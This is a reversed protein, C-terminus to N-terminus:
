RHGSVLEDALPTVRYVKRLAELIAASDTSVSRSQVGDYALDGPLSEINGDFIIGVFEGAGNVTPSGSNGGIIDCDTVFDMPTDMNVDARRDVWSQPLDFPEKDGHESSRQYLGAITTLPAVHAGNEEYGKVTGYALRLTFTADPYTSAGLIDYRAKGIVAQAQQEIEKEAEYNKRLTRSEEDITRALEIMPDHAALVAAAGGSYLRRRLALDGVKTGLVLEAARARPSKGALVDQVTQDGYGLTEVLETLSDGLTLIEMDTYVPKESFLGLELSDRKQDAFEPLREGNPKPGEDGARLLTRAFDFLDSTFGRETELMRERIYIRSIAGEAVAIRDFAQLAEKGDAKQALQYKLSAEAAEKAGMLQPNQIGAILGDYLKRSNRIYFLTEKARRMNEDSRASWATLLVDRRKLYEDVSPYAQDRLKELQAVTLLRETRGPHGSVFVLENERPGTESWKLFHEPHVPQGNEYVRFICIDLDYRPYEFNDPDGGFFAAQQEPSFVLRVDTYRKYRYLHYEGGQYLTVVDSRLGTADKSEKEIEAVVKRRAKAADDGVAGPPVGANVRATVDETSQLVNLELDLCKVEDAATAAYFGDHVFNKRENSMKQLADLGVHNNTIVLGDGSVFSGSGGSNFRVSAKMLHDLWADGVKFGYAAQIRDRPPASFLWMGEDARVPALSALFLAAAAIPAHRM